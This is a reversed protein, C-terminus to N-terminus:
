TSSPTCRSPWGNTGRFGTSCRTSCFSCEAVPWRSCGTSHRPAPSSEKAQPGLIRVGEEGALQRAVDIWPTESGEHPDWATGVYVAVKAKPVEALGACQLIKEVGPYSSAKPGGHVLHWLATLMHTKCGGMQPVLTLVPPANETRGSLRRLVVSTNECLARTFCTRSFFQVPDQYDAPARGAVVQELAIAFEDPNFSRGERVERRPTVVKYWPEM